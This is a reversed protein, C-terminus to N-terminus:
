WSRIRAIQEAGLPSIGSSLTVNSYSQWKLGTQQNAFEVLKMNNLGTSGSMMSVSEDSIAEKNDFDIKLNEASTQSEVSTTPSKSKGKVKNKNVKVNLFDDIKIATM